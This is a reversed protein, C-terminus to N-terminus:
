KKTSLWLIISFLISIIISTTLPFYFTFNEKKIFIDGSLKDFYPIKVGFIFFLGLLILVFGGIILIKGLYAM